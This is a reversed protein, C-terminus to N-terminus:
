GSRPRGLGAQSFDASADRLTISRAPDRGQASAAQLTLEILMFTGNSAWGPGGDPLRPDALVELRLAKSARRNPSSFSRTRTMGARNSKTFSFPVM